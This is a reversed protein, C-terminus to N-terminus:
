FFIRFYGLRKRTLHGKQIAQLVRSVAQKKTEGHKAPQPSPSKSRQGQTRSKNM